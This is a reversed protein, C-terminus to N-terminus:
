LNFPDVPRITQTEAFTTLIPLADKIAGLIRYHKRKSGNFAALTALAHLAVADGELKIVDKCRSQRTLQNLCKVPSYYTGTSHFSYLCCQTDGPKVLLLNNHIGTVIFLTPTQVQPPLQGVFQSYPILKASNLVELNLDTDHEAPKGLVSQSTFKLRQFVLHVADKTAKAPDGTSFNPQNWDAEHTIALPTNLFEADENNIEWLRDKAREETSSKDLIHGTAVVYVSYPKDLKHVRSTPSAMVDIGAAM